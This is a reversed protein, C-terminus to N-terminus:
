PGQGGSAAAAGHAIVAAPFAERGGARPFPGAARLLLPPYAQRPRIEGDTFRAFIWDDLLHPGLIAVYPVFGEGLRARLGELDKEGLSLTEGQTTKVELAVRRGDALTVELDIGQTSRDTVRVAGAELFALALLKQVLKGHELGQAAALERLRRHVELRV